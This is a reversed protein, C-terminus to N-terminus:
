PTVEVVVGYGNVGGLAGTGYLNGSSDFVLNSFPFGGDLGDTFDHFSNYTWDGGSHTLKFVSGFLHLGDQFTTGYLNGDADMMLTGYPGASGRAGYLLHFTWSGGSPTLEFVTGGGGTGGLLTSGYLNGSTDFMLGTVPEKGDTLGQFTYLLSETWGSGSSTLKFVTGANHSGGGCCTTGYLNGSTDFIVGGDPFVGDNGGAFQYLATETWSGGSHTLKFVTGCGLGGCGHPKGGITTAGYLNGSADFIPDGIPEGGDTGGTFRYLVTEAWRCIPGPCSKRVEFATGCGRGGCGQGGGAFTEGYLGGDPGIIVRSRPSAGDNGGTFTYLTTFVWSSGTKALKFVTGFGAGGSLTTGYLAGTGDVTLGAYPSTGDSGGTFNYIVNFTSGQAAQMTGVTLVFAITLARLATAAFINTAFTYM